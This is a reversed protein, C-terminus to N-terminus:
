LENKKNSDNYVTYDFVSGFDTLQSKSIEECHKIIENKSLLGDLNEDYAKIMLDIEEKTKKELSPNYWLLFESRDLSNDGNLDLLRTFRKTKSNILTDDVDSVYNIIDFFLCKKLESVNMNSKISRWFEKVDLLGDSNKDFQDFTIGKEYEHIHPFEESFMFSYFQINDLLGNSDKGAIFEWKKKEIEYLNKVELYEDDINAEEELVEFNEFANEAYKKFTFQEIGLLGLQKLEEQSELAHRKRLYNDFRYFILKVSVASM